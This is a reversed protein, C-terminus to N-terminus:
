LPLGGFRDNVVVLTREQADWIAVHYEGDLLRIVDAGAQLWRELLARRFARTRSEAADRLALAPDGSSYAEGAMWLQFRCDATMAPELDDGDRSLLPPAIVGIGLGLVSWVALRQAADVRLAAAMRAVVRATDATGDAPQWGFTQSMQHDVRASSSRGGGASSSRRRATRM